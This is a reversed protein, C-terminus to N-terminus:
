GCIADAAANVSGGFQDLQSEKAFNAIGTMSDGIYLWCAVSVLNFNTSVVCKM